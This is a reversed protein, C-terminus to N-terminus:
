KFRLIDKARNIRKNVNVKSAVSGQNANIFDNDQKLTLVSEPIIKKTVLERKAFADFTTAVFIAEFHSIIFQGKDSLFANNDLESCSDLFSMFLEKIYILIDDSLQSASKSFTNLFKGMPSKYEDLKFLMGICRLLIELDKFHVDVSKQKLLNRWKPLENLEILLKYFESYYLSM